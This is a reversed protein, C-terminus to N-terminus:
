PTNGVSSYATGTETLITYGEYLPITCVEPVLGEEVALPGFSDVWYAYRTVYDLTEFTNVTNVIKSAATGFNDSCYGFETIWLEKDEEEWDIMYDRYADVYDENKAPNPHYPHMGYGAVDPYSGTIDEVDDRWQSVWFMASQHALDGGHNTHPGIIKAYPFAARVDIFFQAAAYPNFLSM